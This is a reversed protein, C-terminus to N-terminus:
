LAQTALSAAPVRSLTQAASLTVAPFVHLRFTLRAVAASVMGVVAAGVFVSTDPSEESCHEVIRRPSTVVAPDSM